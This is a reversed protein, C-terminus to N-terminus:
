VRFGSGIFYGVGIFLFVRALYCKACDTPLFFDILYEILVWFYFVINALM